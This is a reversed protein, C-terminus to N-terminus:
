ELRLSELANHISMRFSYRQPDPNPDIRVHTFQNSVFRIFGAAIERTGLAVPSFTPHITECYSLALDSDTFVALDGDPAAFALGKENAGIMVYSPFSWVFDSMGYVEAVSCGPDIPRVRSPQM